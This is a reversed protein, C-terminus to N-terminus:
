NHSETITVAINKIISHPVTVSSVMYGTIETPTINEHSVTIIAFTQNVFYQSITLDYFVRLTM